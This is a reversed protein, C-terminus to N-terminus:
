PCADGFHSAVTFMDDIGVYGDQTVDAYENWRLHGPYSGFAEAAAFIDDIGVTGDGTVDGLVRIKVYGDTYHNNTANYEYPIPPINASVTYNHCPTVTTTNWPVVITREENPLLNTITLNVILNSDYYTETAFSETENGLNKVTVNINVIWTRYAWSSSTALGTIAVDRIRTMIWVKGDTFTNDTTNIEYPLLDAEARITYNGEAVGTTNWTSTMTRVENPALSSVIITNILHGDYYTRVDFTESINGKNKVTMSLGVPWGAYAWNMTTHVDTIAIDRILSMFFGDLEVHDIPQDTSNLLETDHLDLPTAGLTKVYFEIGALPIPVQTNFSTGYALSMWVFGVEDDVISLAVPIQGQAKYLRLGIWGIIASNYSLNFMCTKLDAVDDVTINIRFTSDPVMSPDIIEPPDVFIKAMGPPPPTVKFVAHLAHSANMGIIAPNPAGINVLDLEWHDLMYGLNPYATVNVVTGEGYTHAGPTPDTTGFSTTTITLTYTPPPAVESLFKVLGSYTNLDVKQSNTGDILYTRRVAPTGSTAYFSLPVDQPNIPLSTVNFEVWALSGYGPSRFPGFGSWSEGYEVRNFTANHSRFAPNIPITSINQFFDSVFGATYGINTANIYTKDYLLWLQWGGCPVSCNAWITVNFKYGVPILTVNLEIQPPEVWMANAAHAQSPGSASVKYMPLVAIPLLMLLALVSIKQSNKM